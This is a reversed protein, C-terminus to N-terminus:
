PRQPSTPHLEYITPPTRHLPLYARFPLPPQPQHRTSALETSKTKNSLRLTYTHHISATQNILSTYLLTSSLCQHSHIHDPPLKEGRSIKAADLTTQNPHLSLRLPSSTSASTNPHISPPKISPNKANKPQSRRLNLHPLLNKKRHDITKFCTLTRNICSSTSHVTPNNYRIASYQTHDGQQGHMTVMPQRPIPQVLQRSTM